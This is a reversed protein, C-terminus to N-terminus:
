VVLLMPLSICTVMSLVPHHCTGVSRWKLCCCVVLPAQWHLQFSSKKTMKYVQLNISYISIGYVVM